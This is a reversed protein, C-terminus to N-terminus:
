KLKIVLYKRALINSGVGDDLHSMLGSTATVTDLVSAPRLVPERDVGNGISSLM